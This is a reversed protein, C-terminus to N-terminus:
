YVHTHIYTYYSHYLNIWIVTKKWIYIYNCLIFTDVNKCFQNWQWVTSAERAVLHWQVVGALKVKFTPLLLFSSCSSLPLHMFAPSRSLYLSLFLTLEFTFLRQVKCSLWLQPNMVFNIIICIVYVYTHIYTSEYSTGHGSLLHMIPFYAYLNFIFVHLLLLELIWSFLANCEFLCSFALSVFSFSLIRPLFFAHFDFVGVRM